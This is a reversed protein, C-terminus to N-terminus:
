TRKFFAIEAIATNVGGQLSPKVTLIEIELRSVKKVDVNYYRFEGVDELDKKVDEPAKKNSKDFFRFLVKQPRPQATFLEPKTLAGVVFGVKGLRIPPDFTVTLMDRGDTRQGAWYDNTIRDFALEARHDPLQSTAKVSFPTVEEFHPVLAQRVGSAKKKVTGRWPGAFGVALGVAAVIAAARRMQPLRSRLGGGPASGGRRMPREGAAIVKPQRVFPRKWWPLPPPVVAEKAQVLSAGCRRCFRRTPENGERCEGCILDGPRIERRPPPKSPVPRAKAVVPKV